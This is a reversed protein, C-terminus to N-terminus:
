SADLARLELGAALWVCAGLDIALVVTAFSEASKWRRLLWTASAGLFVVVVCWWGRAGAGAADGTPASTTGALTVEWLMALGMVLLAGLTIYARAKALNLAVTDHRRKEEREVRSILERVIQPILASAALALLALTFQPLAAGAAESSARWWIAVWTVLVFLASLNAIRNSPWNDNSRERGLALELVLRAGVLAAFIGALWKSTDLTGSAIVMTLPGLVVLFVTVWDCAMRALGQLARETARRQYAVGFVSATATLQRVASSWRSTEM